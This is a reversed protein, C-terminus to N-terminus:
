NDLFHTLIFKKISHTFHVFNVFIAAVYIVINSISKLLQYNATNRLYIHCRHNRSCLDSSMRWRNWHYSKRGATHAQSEYSRSRYISTRDCKGNGRSRRRWGLRSRSRREGDKSGGGQRRIRSRVRVGRSRERSCVTSPWCRCVSPRVFVHSSRSLDNTYIQVILQYLSAATM